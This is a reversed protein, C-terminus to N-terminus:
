RVPKPPSLRIRQGVGNGTLRFGAATLGEVLVGKRNRVSTPIQVLRSQVAFRGRGGVERATGGARV